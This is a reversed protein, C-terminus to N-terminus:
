DVLKISSAIFKDDVLEGVIDAKRIVNCFGTHEDHADGFDDIKFGEVFYATGDIKFALDCGNESDLEFKCQGCSIEAVQKIENKNACSAIILLSLVIIKKM